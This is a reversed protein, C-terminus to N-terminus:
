ASDGSVNLTGAMPSVVGECPPIAASQAAAYGVFHALDGIPVGVEAEHMRPVERHTAQCGGGGKHVLLESHCSSSGNLVM